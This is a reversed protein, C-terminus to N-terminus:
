RDPVPLRRDRRDPIHGRTPGRRGRDALAHFVYTTVELSPQLKFSALGYEDTRLEIQHGPSTVKASVPRGDLGTTLVYITNPFGKVLTGSEAFVDIRLPQSSVARSESRSQDQGSPDRVSATVTFRGDSADRSRDVPRDPLRFEFRAKGDADLKREMPAIALPGVESAQVNITVQGDRVPKGFVYDASVSGKVVQGPRYDAPDLQVAVKFRPVVYTRVEVSDRTTADGVRCEVQYDGEILEDALPCAVAAIGHPSTKPRSRFVVNGKPDIVAFAMERGGLPRHDPRTLALGRLRIVQGPRYIPRDTSLIVDWSRKLKITRTVSEVDSGPRASVLLEYEGEPWDPVSLRPSASGDPGTSLDALKVSKGRGSLTVEVPVSAMPKGGDKSLLRVHLGAPQDPRWDSQGLVMLDYPAPSWARVFGQITLLALALGGAVKWFLVM